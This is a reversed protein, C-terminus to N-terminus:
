GGLDSVAWVRSGDPEDQVFIQLWMPGYGPTRNKYLYSRSVHNYSKLWHDNDPRPSHEIKMTDDVIMGKLNERIFHDVDGRSAFFTVQERAGQGFGNLVFYVDQAPKPFAAFYEDGGKSFREVDQANSSVLSCSTAVLLVIALIACRKRM